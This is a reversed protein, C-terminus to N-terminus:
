PCSSRRRAEVHVEVVRVRGLQDGEDLGVAHSLDAGPGSAADGRLVHGAGVCRCDAHDTGAILRAGLELGHAPHSVNRARFDIGAGLFIPLAEGRYQLTLTMVEAM